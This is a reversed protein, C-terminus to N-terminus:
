AKKLKDTHIKVSKHGKKINVTVPLLIEEIIFPGDYPTAYKHKKFPKKVLARDGTKLSIPNLSQDHYAKNKEKRIVINERAIKWYKTLNFRLEDKYNEYIYIPNNNRIIKDPLQVAYGFILEHPSYGTASNIANNYAFVASDM